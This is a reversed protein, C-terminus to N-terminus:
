RGSCARPLASRRPRCGGARSARRLRPRPSGSRAGRRRSRAALLLVELREDPDARDGHDLHVRVLLHGAPVRGRRREEAVLGLLREPPLDVVEDEAALCDVLAALDRGLRERAAARVADRAPLPLVACRDIDLQHEHRQGDLALADAEEADVVVDGLELLRALLGLRRGLRLAREQRRHAVLDPRRHVGHDAHGAQQEAGLQRRLLALEGLDDRELPSASSCTISSM